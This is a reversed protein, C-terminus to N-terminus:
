SADRSFAFQNNTMMTQSQKVRERMEDPTLKTLHTRDVFSTWYKLADKIPYSLPLPYHQGMRLRCPDIAMYGVQVVAHSINNAAVDDFVSAMTGDKNRRYGQYEIVKCDYDDLELTRALNKV